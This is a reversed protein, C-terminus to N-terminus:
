YSDSASFALESWVAALESFAPDGHVMALQRIAHRADEFRWGPSNLCMWAGDLDRARLLRAFVDYQATALFWEPGQTYRPAEALSRDGRKVFLSHSDMEYPCYRRLAAPDRPSNPTPFDGKYAGLDAERVLALPLNNAFAPHTCLLREDLGQNLLAELEDIDTIGCDAAFRRVDRDICDDGIICVCIHVYVAQMLTRGREVVKNRRGFVTTGYLEVYTPYRTSFWHKWLGFVTQAGTVWIPVLAPPFPRILHRESEPVRITQTIIADLLQPQGLHPTVSAYDSVQVSGM